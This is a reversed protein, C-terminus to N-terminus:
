IFERTYRKLLVVIKKIREYVKESVLMLKNPKDASDAMLAADDAVSIPERGM